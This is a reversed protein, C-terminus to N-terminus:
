ELTFKEIEDAASTEGEQATRIIKTSAAM